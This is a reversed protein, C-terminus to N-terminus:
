ELFARAKANIYFVLLELFFVFISAAFSILVYYFWINVHNMDLAVASEQKKKYIFSSEKKVIMDSIGSEYLQTIIRDVSKHMYDNNKFKFGLHDSLIIERLRTFKKSGNLAKEIFNLHETDTIFSSQSGDSLIEKLTKNV